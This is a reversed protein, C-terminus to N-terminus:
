AMCGVELLHPGQPTVTAALLEHNMVMRLQNVAPNCVLLCIPEFLYKSVLVLTVLFMRILDFQWRILTLGCLRQAGASLKSERDNGM